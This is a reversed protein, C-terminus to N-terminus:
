RPTGGALTMTWASLDGNWPALATELRPAAREMGARRSPAEGELSSLERYLEIVERPVGGPPARRTSHHGVIEGGPAITPTVHALVWYHDGNKCRNVVYVFVEERAKLSRWMGRFIVAPMFPHRVVNHPRGLLEHEAFGSIRCFTSNVYRIIGKSDTKSVVLDDPGLRRERGGLDLAAGTAVAVGM